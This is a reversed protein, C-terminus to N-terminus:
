RRLKRRLSLFAPILMLGSAWLAGPEPIPTAAPVSARDAYFEAGGAPGSYLVFQNPGGGVSPLTLTEWRGTTTSDVRALLDVPGHFLFLTAVGSVVFVDVSASAQSQQPFARYVGCDQAGTTIHIMYGSGYPDTTPLLESSTTTYRNNYLNWGDASSPSAVDDGTLSTPYNPPTLDGLPADFGDNVIIGARGAWALGLIVLAAFSYRVLNTTLM